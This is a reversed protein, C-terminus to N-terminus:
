TGNNPHGQIKPLNSAPQAKDGGSARNALEITLKEAAESSMQALIDSMRRPNIQTAVQLLIKMDLRDFIRAADKAKMNEYMTVLGKFRQAEIEDKKQIGANIRSELQKLENARADLRKEATKILAERIDLERARAELEQRRQQLSGLVAKEGATPPGNPDLSIAKGDMAPPPSAAKEAGAKGSETKDKENAGESPRGKSEEQKKAANKDAANKEAQKEAALTGTVEPFNFMDRAWPQSNRASAPARADEVRPRGETVVVSGPAALGDSPSDTLTYGGDLVIGFVKLAFLCMTAVLAIPILRVNRLWRTM